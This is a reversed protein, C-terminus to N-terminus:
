SVKEAVAYVTASTHASPILPMISADVVRLGQIGYVKLDSAVVGGRGRPMMACTGVPHSYTPQLLRRLAAGLDQLVM